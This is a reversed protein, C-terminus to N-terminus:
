PKNSKEFVCLVTLLCLGNHKLVKLIPFNTQSYQKTLQLLSIFLITFRSSFFHSRINKGYQGVWLLSYISLFLMFFRTFLISQCHMFTFFFCLLVIPVREDIIQLLSMHNNAQM